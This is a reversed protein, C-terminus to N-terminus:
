LLYRWLELKTIPKGRFTDPVKPDIRLAILVCGQVQDYDLYAGIQPLHQVGAKGRKVEIATSLQPLWFDLRYHRGLPYERHFEFGTDTLITEIADHLRLEDMILTRRARLRIALRDLFDLMTM